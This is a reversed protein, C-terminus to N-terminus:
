TDHNGASPPHRAPFVELWVVRNWHRRAAEDPADRARRMVIANLLVAPFRRHDRDTAGPRDGIVEHIRAFRIQAYQSCLIQQLYNFSWRPLGAVEFRIPAATRQLLWRWRRHLREDAPGPGSQWLKRQFAGVEQWFLGQMTNDINGLNCKLFPLLSARGPLRSM